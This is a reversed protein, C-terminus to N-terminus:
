AEVLGYRRQWAERLRAWVRKKEDETAEAGPTEVFRTSEEKALELMARDRVLNAVRFDPLGAQRTGFFEGPGRLQLDLEALEFGNQTRVMAALREEGQLSVKGGTMLICYSKAAGRGVRGRLQHLQALGFREAHEIVMLSANPVDVGVEIVTTSILVDIDGRQFRRMVVEKDDASLRGHLLGLRLGSLHTARLNEFMETASKLSPKEFLEATKKTPKKAASKKTPKKQPEPEPEAFDLEPQDDKPGEIVPYVIYAQHGRKV